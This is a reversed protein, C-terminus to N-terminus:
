FLLERNSIKTSFNNGTERVPCALEEPSKGVYETTIGEITLIGKPNLTVVAYLAEKYPATYKIWPYKEDIEKSYRISLYNEGLWKYSMSNIQIYNIENIVTHYDTHHHGSFCAIIKNFGANKNIEELISRLKEANEVGNENELSQHSFIFTQYRTNNLDDKLWEIQENGIYRPYGSAPKEKKDNGDLVIFHFDGKDFSYYKAKSGWFDITQKRTFGGDMDHNGLVHYCDGSFNHYIDLFAKNYDYPRCFDGLQLIFDGKENKMRDTFVKIREDSDHMIDKHVDACLGFKIKKSKKASSANIRFPIFISATGFATKRIFSRRSIHMNYNKFIWLIFLIITLAM